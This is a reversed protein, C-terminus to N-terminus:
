FGVVFQLLLANDSVSTDTPDSVHDFEYAAKLVMRPSLWYDLGVTFRSRDAPDPAGDPSHLFDWRVVPELDKWFGAAQTPRYALQVYGGSRDNSFPGGGLDVQDQLDAFLVEARADIRGGAWRPEATYSVSFDHMLLHNSPLASGSSIVDNYQVGYAVEVEPVPLYGVRFGFAKDGNVDSFEDLSYTGAGDGDEVLSPGNTVWATYNFKGARTAFAGRVEAGMGKEPALGGDDAFLPADPLVNIWSPHLSQQFTDLPHLIVGARVSMWDTVDYGAYAYEINAKSDNDEVEFEVAAAAYAKESLKWLFIPKFAAGFTSDGHEPATFTSEIFGGLHFKQEGLSLSSVRSELEDLRKDQEDLRGPTDGDQRAPAGAGDEARPYRISARLQQVEAELQQLRRLTEEQGAPAGQGSDQALARGCLCSVAGATILIRAIRM